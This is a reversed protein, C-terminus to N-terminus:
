GDNIDRRRGFRVQGAVKQLYEERELSLADPDAMYEPRPLSGAYALAGEHIARAAEVLEDGDCEESAKLLALRAAAPAMRIPYSQTDPEAGGGYLFAALSLANDHDEQLDEGLDRLSHNKLKEALFGDMLAEAVAPCEDIYPTLMKPLKGDAYYCAQWSSWIADATEALADNGTQKLLAALLAIRITPTPHVDDIQISGVEAPEALLLDVLAYSYGAGGWMVGLVDALMEPTWARWLKVRQSDANAVAGAVLEALEDRLGLDFDVLHGAEHYISSLSWIAETDHFRLSMIPVPLGRTQLSEDLERGFVGLAKGRRIAAPSAKANLWGLPPERFDDEGVVGWDQSHRIGMKYCQAAVLDATDLSARFRSDADRQDFLERFIEILAHSGNMEAELDFRLGTFDNTDDKELAAALDTLLGEQDDTFQKFLLGIAKLQSGHIGLGDINGEVDAQWADLEAPLLGARRKLEVLVSERLDM